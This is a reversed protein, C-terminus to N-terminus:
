RRWRRKKKLVWGDATCHDCPHFAGDHLWLVAKREYCVPCPMNHAAWPGGDTVITPVLMPGALSDYTPEATM